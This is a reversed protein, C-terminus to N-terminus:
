NKKSDGTRRGPRELTSFRVTRVSFVTGGPEKIKKSRTFTDPPTTQGPFDVFFHKECNGPQVPHQFLTKRPKISTFLAPFTKKGPNQSQLGKFFHKERNKGKAGVLLGSPWIAEPYRCLGDDGAPVKIVCYRYVM